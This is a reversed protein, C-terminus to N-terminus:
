GLLSLASQLNEGFLSPDTGEAPRIYLTARYGEEKGQRIELEAKTGRMLSYHTDSSGAPEKYKWLVTVKSHVGKITYNIEGNSYVELISDKLNKSLFDPYAETRTVSRFESPTLRTPWKKSSLIKIDKGHDLRLGPFGLWQNLDILHTSVDVIGHGQQESDFFWGPRVIAQGGSF